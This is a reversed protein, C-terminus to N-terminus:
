RRRARSAPGGAEHDLVRGGSLKGIGHPPHVRAQPDDIGRQRGFREEAARTRQRLPLDLHQAQSEGPRRDGPDGAAQVQRLARYAVVQRGRDSLGARARADLRGSDGTVAAPELLLRRRAPHDARHRPRHPPDDVMPVHGCNPLAVHHAQPLREPGPGVPRLAPDQRPHGVRDHDPRCRSGFPYGIGAKLTPFFGRRQAPGGQRRHVRRRQPSRRARVPHPRDPSAAAAASPRRVVGPPLYSTLKLLILASPSWATSAASFAQPASRPSRRSSDALASSSRSAGGLSNGVVHPQQHGVGRLKSSSRAPTTWTYATGAPYADSEGFGSLDVAIVDYKEAFRDFVPNWAQRRHGIGHILVLPEGSGKRTYALHTTM